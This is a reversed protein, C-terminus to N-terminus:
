AEAKTGNRGGRTLSCLLLLALALVLL